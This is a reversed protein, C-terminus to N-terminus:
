SVMTDVPIVHLFIKQEIRSEAKLLNLNPSSPTNNFLRFMKSTRHFIKFGTAPLRSEDICIPKM